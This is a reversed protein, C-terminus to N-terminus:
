LLWPILAWTDRSYEDYALGFAKRLNVEELRIKRWYAYFLIVLGFIAHSQGSVTAAGVSMGLIATYIPHRLWRYPGSQVLRHDIKFTIEGSWHFGLHRRAWVALLTFAAQIGLGLGRMVLTGIVFRQNLGPIPIYLLLFGANALLLHTRRSTQSESSQAPSASKAASKWYMEFLGLMAMSLLLAPNRIGALFDSPHIPM